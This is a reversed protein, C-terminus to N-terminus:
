SDQIKDRITKGIRLDRTEQTNRTVSDFEMHARDNRFQSRRRSGLRYCYPDFPSQDYQSVIGPKRREYYKRKERGALLNRHISSSHAKDGNIKTYDAMRINAMFLAELGRILRRAAPGEQPEVEPNGTLDAYPRRNGASGQWVVTRVPGYM